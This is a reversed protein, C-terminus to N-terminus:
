PSYFKVKFHPLAVQVDMQYKYDMIGAEHMFRM